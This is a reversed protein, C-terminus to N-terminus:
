FLPDESLEMPVRSHNWKCQSRLWRLLQCLLGKQTRGLLLHWFIVQWFPCRSGNIYTQRQAASNSVAGGKWENFVEQYVESSWMQSIHEDAWTTILYKMWKIEERCRTIGQSATTTIPTTMASDLLAFCFWRACSTIYPCLSLGPLTHTSQGAEWYHLTFVLGEWGFYHFNNRFLDDIKSCLM